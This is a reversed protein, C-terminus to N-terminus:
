KVIEVSYLKNDFRNVFFLRNGIKKPKEIEFLSESSGLVTNFSGDNINWAVLSDSFFTKEKFYDDPLLTGPLIELPVGCYAVADELACKSPLTPAPATSLIRNDKDIAALYNEKFSNVFKLGTKGDKSWSVVLGPEDKIIARITKNKINISWISNLALATPKQKLYIEEPMIWEVLLDKQNFKFIEINKKTDLDLINITSINGLDSLYAISSKNPSWAASITKEPLPQWSNKSFDFVSFLAESNRGISILAFKGEFSSEFFNINSLNQLDSKKEEGRDAIEFVQGETSLYSIKGSDNIWYQVVDKLSEAMIRKNPTPSPTIGATPKPEGIVNQVTPKLYPWLAYIIFAVAAIIVIAIIFKKM